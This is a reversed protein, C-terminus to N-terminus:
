YVINQEKQSKIIFIYVSITNLNNQLLLQKLNEPTIFDDWNHTGKQVLGSIYEAGVIVKLWSETTKNITSLLLYGQPKLLKQLSQIFLNKDKVHEIVEMATIFDFKYDIQLNEPSTLIYQLQNDDRLDPSLQKHQNAQDISQQSVDIGIVNADLRRLSESLIGGGVGVDLVNLGSLSKNKQQRQLIQHIFNVRLYNYSFLASMSGSSSWWDNIQNFKQRDIENITSFLQKIIRNMYIIEYEEDEEKEPIQDQDRETNITQTARRRIKEIHIMARLYLDVTEEKDSNHKMRDDSIKRSDSGRRDSDRRDQDRYYNRNYDRNYDKDRHKEKSKQLDREKEIERIKQKEKDLQAQKEIEKQQQDLRTLLSRKFRVFDDIRQSSYIKVSQLHQRFKFVEEDIKDHFQPIESKNLLISISHYTIVQAKKDDFSKIEDQTLESGDMLQYYSREQKQHEIQKALDYLQEDLEDIEEGEKDNIINMYRKNQSILLLLYRKRLLKYFEQLQQIQVNFSQRQQSIITQQDKDVLFKYIPICKLIQDTKSILNKRQYFKYQIILEVIQERTKDETPLGRAQCYNEIADKDIRMFRDKQQQLWGDIAQGGEHHMFTVELGKLFKSDYISWERWIQILKFVKEKYNYLEQLNDFIQPLFYQFYIKYIWFGQQQNSSNHLIDSILYLRCLKQNWSLSELLSDRITMVIDASCNHNEMCYVMAKGIVQKQNNLDRIMQHFTARDDDSLVNAGSWNNSKKDKSSKDVSQIRDQDKKVLSNAEETDVPPPYYVKGSLFIKFPDTKWQKENDGNMLSYVRWKYYEQEDCAKHQFIQNLIVISLFAFLPNNAEREILANEFGSGEYVIIRALRDIITRLSSNPIKIMKSRQIIQAGYQIKFNFGNEIKQQLETYARQAEQSNSYEIHAVVNGKYEQYFVRLQIEKVIGYEQLLLRLADTNIKPTLDSITLYRSNTEVFRYLTQNRVFEFLENFNQSIPIQKQSLDLHKPLTKQIVQM